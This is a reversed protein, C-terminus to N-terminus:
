TRKLSPTFLHSFKRLRAAENNKHFSKGSTLCNCFISKERKGQNMNWESNKQLLLEGPQNVLGIACTRFGGGLVPVNQNLFVTEKSIWLKRRTGTQRLFLRPSNKLLSASIKGCEFVHFNSFHWLLRLFVYILLSGRSNKNKLNEASKKSFWSHDTKWIVWFCIYFKQASSNSRFQVRWQRTM